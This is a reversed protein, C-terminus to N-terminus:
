YTQHKIIKKPEHTKNIGSLIVLISKSQGLLKNYIIDNIKKVSIKFKESIIVKNFRKSM